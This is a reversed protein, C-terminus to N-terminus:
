GSLLSSLHRCSWLTQSYSSFFQQKNSTYFHDWGTVRVIRLQSGTPTFNLSRKWPEGAEHGPEMKQRQAIRERWGRTASRWAAKGSSPSDQKSWRLKWWISVYQAVETSNTVKGTFLESPCSYAMWSLTDWSFWWTKRETLVMITTIQQKNDAKGVM